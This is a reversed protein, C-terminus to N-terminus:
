FITICSEVSIFSYKCIGWNEENWNGTFQQKGIVITIRGTLNKKKEPIYTQTDEM